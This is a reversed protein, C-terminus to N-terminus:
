TTVYLKKNEEELDKIKKKLDDVSQAKAELEKMKEDKAAQAETELEKIRKEKEAVLKELGAIKEELEKVKEEMRKEGGLNNKEVMLHACSKFYRGNGLGIPIYFDKLNDPLTKDLEDM